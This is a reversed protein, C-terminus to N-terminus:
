DKGKSQNEEEKSYNEVPRKFFYVGKYIAVLEWGDRGLENLYGTVTQGVRALSIVNYEWKKKM